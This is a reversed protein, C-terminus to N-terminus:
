GPAIGQKGNSSWRRSCGTHGRQERNARACVGSVDDGHKETRESAVKGEIERERKLATPKSTDGDRNVLIFAPSSLTSISSLSYSSPSLRRVVHERFLNSRALFNSTKHRRRHEVTSLVTREIFKQNEM